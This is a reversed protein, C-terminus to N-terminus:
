DATVNNNSDKTYHTGDVYVDTAAGTYTNANVTTTVGAAMAKIRWLGSFGGDVTNNGELILTYDAGCSGDIEIAATNQNAVAGAFRGQGGHFRSNKVTLTHDVGQDKFMVLAHGQTYFDCDDVLVDGDYIYTYRMATKAAEDDNDFTCKIFSVDGYLYQQGIITCNTYTMGNHRIYAAYYAGDEFTVKVNQLAVTCGDLGLHDHSSGVANTLAIEAGDKHEGVVNITKNSSTLVNEYKGDALIVNVESASGRMLSTFASATTVYQVGDVSLTAGNIVRGAISLETDNTCNNVTYVYAQNATGFFAGLKDTRMAGDEIESSATSATVDCDTLTVTSTAYGVYIAANGYSNNVNANEVDVDTLNVTSNGNAYGVVAAAGTSTAAAYGDEVAVNALKLGEVNLTANTAVFFMGVSELGDHSGTVFKVNSITNGNGKFNLTDGYAVGIEKFEAGNLDISAMLEVNQIEAVGNNGILYKGSLAKLDNASYVYITGDEPNEVQANGQIAEVKYTITCTKDQYEDGNSEPLEISVPVIANESGVALESWNSVVTVGNYGVKDGITVDLGAFLGSDNECSIITRYQVIVNSKNEVVINFKIGDGALLTSLTLGEEHLTATGGYMNGFGLAYDTNLQKTQVSTEDVSAVVSVKGSSAAINVKSESAFLAFTAGAILSACLMITMIATAIVNKKVTKNMIRDGKKLQRVAVVNLFCFLM